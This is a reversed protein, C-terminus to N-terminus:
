NVLRGEQRTTRDMRLRRGKKWCHKTHHSASLPTPLLRARGRAESWAGSPGGTRQKCGHQPVEAKGSCACSEWCGHASHGCLKWRVSDRCAETRTASIQPVVASGSDEMSRQRLACIVAEARGLTRVSLQTAHFINNLKKFVADIMVGEALKVLTETLAMPRVRGELEACRYWCDETGCTQWM